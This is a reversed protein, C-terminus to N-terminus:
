RRSTLIAALGILAGLIGVVGPVWMLFLEVRAKKEARILGRMHNIGAKSLYVHNPEDREYMTTDSLDPQQILFRRAELQWYRSHLKQSEEEFHWSNEAGERELEYIEDELAKRQKAARIAASNTRELRREERELSMLQWRFNLYAFM